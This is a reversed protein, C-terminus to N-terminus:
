LLSMVEVQKALEQQYVVNKLLKESDRKKEADEAKKRECEMARAIEADRAMQDYKMAEKEAMQAMLEKNTYAAKLMSEFERLEASFFLKM